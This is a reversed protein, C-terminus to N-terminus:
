ATSGTRYFSLDLTVFKYGAERIAKVIHNRTDADAIKDFDRPEIEIRCVDGHHRARYQHFGLQKLVEEAQEVKRIEEVSVRSGKPFRSSLCAFSAKDATPLGRRASLLRIEEKSLQAQQLPSIVEHEEAAKHGVRTPDLLDEMIAGYAMTHIGHDRAYERMRTFLEGRCHYCRTGDNKLYDENEFESTYLVKFNWSREDALHTAEQVESRPISPSDALIIHADHGLAEHAADALYTSDVGGSFAVAVQKHSALLDLLAQEKDLVEQSINHTQTM